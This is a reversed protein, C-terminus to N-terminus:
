TTTDPHHAGDSPPPRGIRATVERKTGCLAAVETPLVEGCQLQTNHLWVIDAWPGWAIQGTNSCGLLMQICILFIETQRDTNLRQPRTPPEQNELWERPEGPRIKNNM